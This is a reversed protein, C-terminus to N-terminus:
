WIAGASPGFEAFNDLQEFLFKRSPGSSSLLRAKRRDLGIQDAFGRDDFGEGAFQRPLGLGGLGDPAGVLQTAIDGRLDSIRTM